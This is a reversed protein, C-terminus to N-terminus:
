QIRALTDLNQASQTVIKGAIEDTTHVKIMQSQLLLMESSSMDPGVAELAGSLKSHQSEVSELAEVAKRFLSAAQADTAERVAPLPAFGSVQSDPQALHTLVQITSM